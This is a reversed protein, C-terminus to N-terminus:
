RNEAPVLGAGFASLVLTILAIPLQYFLWPRRRVLRRWRPRPGPRYGCLEELETRGKGILYYGIHSQKAPPELAFVQEALHLALGAVETESKTSHKALDEIAHRYLDRTAFDCQSYFGSPDKRLTADVLSVEEVLESWDIGALLRLSQIINSVSIQAGALDHHKRRIMQDPDIGSESLQKYLWEVAAFHVPPEDRLRLILQLAFAGVIRRPDHSRERLLSDIEATSGAAILRSAFLNADNRAHREQHSLLILRKLNEILGVRLLIAIAWLEGTTLIHVTQYSGIYRRLLEADLRSDTHSILDLAMEYLRPYGSYPGSALAPLELYFKRPLDEKIAQLQGTILHFNDLFWEEAPPLSEGDAAAQSILGYAQQLFQSNAHFQHLLEPDPRKGPAVRQAAALTKAEEALQDASFLEGRISETQKSQDM